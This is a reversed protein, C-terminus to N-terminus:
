RHKPGAPVSPVSEPHSVAGELLKPLRLLNYAAMAVTFQWNVKPLGRHRGKRMGLSLKEAARRLCPGHWTADDIIELIQARRAVGQDLILDRGPLM